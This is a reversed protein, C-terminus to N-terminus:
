CLSGLPFLAKSLAGANGFDLVTLLNLFFFPLNWTLQDMVTVTYIDTGCRKLQDTLSSVRM